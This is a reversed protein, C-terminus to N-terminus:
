EAPTCRCAGPTGIAARFRNFCVPCIRKCVGGKHNFAKYSRHRKSPYKRACHECTYGAGHKDPAAKAARARKRAPKAPVVDGSGPGGESASGPASGSGSGPGDETDGIAANDGADYGQANNIDTQPPTAANDRRSAPRTPRCSERACARARVGLATEGECCRARVCLQRLTPVVRHAWARARACGFRDGRRLVEGARVLQTM